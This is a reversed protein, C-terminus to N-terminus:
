PAFAASISLSGSRRQDGAIAGTELADIEGLRLPAADRDAVRGVLEGLVHGVAGDREGIRDHAAHHLRVPEHAGAAPRLFADRRRPPEGALGDAITPRPRIPAAPPSAPRPSRCAPASDQAAAWLRHARGTRRRCGAAPRRPRRASRQRARAALRGAVQDIAGHQLPETGVSVQDVDRAARDDVLGRQDGRQLVLLDGAGREVHERGLRVDIRAKKGSSLTTSAGCEAEIVWSVRAAISARSSPSM